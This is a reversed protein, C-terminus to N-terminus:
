KRTYQLRLAKWWAASRPPTPKEGREGLAKEEELKEFVTQALTKQTTPCRTQYKVVYSLEAGINKEILSDTKQKIKNAEMQKAFNSRDSM